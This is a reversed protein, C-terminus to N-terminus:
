APTALTRLLWTPAQRQRAQLLLDAHPTRRYPWARVLLAAVDVRNADHMWIVAFQMARSTHGTM